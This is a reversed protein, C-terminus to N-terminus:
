RSSMLPYEHCRRPFCRTREQPSPESINWVAKTATWVTKDELWGLYCDTVTWVSQANPVVDTLRITM